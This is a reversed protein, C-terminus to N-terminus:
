TEDLIQQQLDLPEGKEMMLSAMRNKLEDLHTEIKTIAQESPNVEMKKGYDQNYHSVYRM